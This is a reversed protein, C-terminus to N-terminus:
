LRYHLIRHAMKAARFTGMIRFLLRDFFELGPIDESQTFYWEELLQIGEGWNEIQKPDDIGWYVHAGTKKISPHNKVSRATLRSYADFAIESSPFRARLDLILQQVEEERLYMLLGEAIICAPGKAKISKMWHSDTVSSPIMHYHDTEHFFKKRLEIVDPYDLDYWEGNTHKVRIVRSDLGCGLHLVIPNEARDLYARAYSDLKKARMALTILTQKPVGLERFDYEIRRLIEGAKPDQIIPRKQKNEVAKSYLPVLLTERERTLRITQKEM